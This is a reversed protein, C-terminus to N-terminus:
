IFVKHVVALSKVFQITPTTEHNSQLLPPRITINAPIFIQSQSYSSLITMSPQNKVAKAKVTNENHTHRKRKNLHKIGMIPTLNLISYPQSLCFPLNRNLRASSEIRLPGLDWDEFSWIM